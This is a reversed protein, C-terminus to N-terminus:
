IGSHQGLMKTPIVSSRQKSCPCVQHFMSIKVWISEFYLSHRVLQIYKKALAEMKKEPTELGDFVHVLLDVILSASNKLIRM